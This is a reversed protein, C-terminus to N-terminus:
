EPITLRSVDRDDRYRYLQDEGFTFHSTMFDIAASKKGLKWLKDKESGSPSLLTRLARFVYRVPKIAQQLKERMLRIAPSPGREFLHEAGLANLAKRYTERHPADNRHFCSLWPKSRGTFHRITPSVILGATFKTSNFNLPLPYWRKALVVNLADQDALKPYTKESLHRRVEGILDADLTKKWDFLMVGSNFYYDDRCLGAEAIEPQASLKAQVYALSLVAGLPFEHLEANLLPVLSRLVLIDSDLYLVRDYRSAIHSDIALRYFKSQPHHGMRIASLVTRDVECIAISKGAVESVKEAFRSLDIDGDRDSIIFFDCGSTGNRVASLCTAGAFPLWNNSCSVVVAFKMDAHNRQYHRLEFVRM